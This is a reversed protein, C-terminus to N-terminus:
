PLFYPLSLNLLESYLNLLLGAEIWFAYRKRDCIAIICGLIAVFPIGTMIILWTVASIGALIAAGAHVKGELEEKFSPAFAVFLVGAVTLFVLFRFDEPTLEFMPIVGTIISVAVVSSFLWKKETKYYTDSISTPIGFKAIYVILFSSLIVTSILILLIYIM